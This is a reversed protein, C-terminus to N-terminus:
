AVPKLRGKRKHVQIQLLTKEVKRRECIFLCLPPKAPRCIISTSACGVFLASGNQVFCPPFNLHLGKVFNQAPKCSIKPRWPNLRQDKTMQKLKTSNIKNQCFM